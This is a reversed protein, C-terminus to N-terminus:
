LHKENNEEAGGSLHRTLVDTTESGNEEVDKGTWSENITNSVIYHSVVDLM